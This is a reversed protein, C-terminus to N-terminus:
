KKNKSRPKLKEQYITMINHTPIFANLKAKLVSNSKDVFKWPLILSMMHRFGLDQSHILLLIKIGDKREEEVGIYLIAHMSKCYNLWQALSVTYEEHKFDYLNQYINLKYENCNSIIGQLLNAASYDLHSSDFVPKLKGDSERTYYINTNMEKIESFTSNAPIFIGKEFEIVEPNDLTDATFVTPMSLLQEKITKEIKNKPMGLILEFNMPFVMHLIEKQTADCWIAEYFKNDTQRISFPTEPTIKRATKPSGKKFIVKDQKLHDLFLPNANQLSDLKYLYRELFDYVVSPYATKMEDSFLHFHKEEAKGPLFSQLFFLMLFIRMKYTM